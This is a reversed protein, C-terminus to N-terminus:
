EVPNKQYSQIGIHVLFSFLFSKAIKIMEDHLKLLISQQKLLPTYKLKKTRKERVVCVCVMIKVISSFFHVLVYVNSLAHNLQTM